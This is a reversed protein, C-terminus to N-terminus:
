TRVDKGRRIRGRIGNPVSEQGPVARALTSTNAHLGCAILTLVVANYGLQPSAFM